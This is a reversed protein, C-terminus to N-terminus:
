NKTTSCVTFSGCPSVTTLAQSPCLNNEPVEEDGGQASSTPHRSSGLAPPMSLSGWSRLSWSKLISHWALLLTPNHDAHPCSRPKTHQSPLTSSELCVLLPLLVYHCARIDRGDPRDIQDSYQDQSCFPLVSKPRSPSDLAMLRPSPSPQPLPWSPAPVPNLTCRLPLGMLLPPLPLSPLYLAFGRAQFLRVSWNDRVTRGPPPGQSSVTLYATRRPVRM